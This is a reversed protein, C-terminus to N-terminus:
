LGRFSRTRVLAERRDGPMEEVLAFEGRSLRKVEGAAIMRRLTAATTRSSLDAVLAIDQQNMPAGELAARVALRQREELKTVTKAPMAGVVKEVESRDLWLVKEGVVILREGVRRRRVEGGLGLWGDESFLGYIHEVLVEATHHDRAWCEICVNISHEMRASLSQEEVGAAVCFLPLRSDGPVDEASTFVRPVGGMGYLEKSGRIRAALYREVLDLLPADDVM